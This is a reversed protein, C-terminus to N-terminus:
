SSCSDRMKWSFLLVALLIVPLVFLFLPLDVQVITIVQLLISIVLLGNIGWKLNRWMKYLFELIVIIAATLFWFAPYRYFQERVFLTPVIWLVYGLYLLCIMTDIAPRNPKEIEEALFDDVMHKQEM